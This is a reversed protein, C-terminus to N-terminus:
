LPMPEEIEVPEYVLIQQKVAPAINPLVSGKADVSDGGLLIRLVQNGVDPIEDLAELSLAVPSAQNTTVVNGLRVATHTWKADRYDFVLQQLKRDGSKEFGDVFLVEQDTAIPVTRFSPSEVSNIFESTAELEATVVEDDLGIDLAKEVVDIM